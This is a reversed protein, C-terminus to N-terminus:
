LLKSEFFALFNVLSSIVWKDSAKGKFVVRGNNKLKNNFLLNLFTHKRTEILVRSLVVNKNQTPNECLSPLMPFTNKFYCPLKSRREHFKAM